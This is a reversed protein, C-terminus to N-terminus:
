IADPQMNDVEDSRADGHIDLNHTKLERKSGFTDGCACTYTEEM